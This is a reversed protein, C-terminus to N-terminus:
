EKRAPGAAAQGKGTVAWYIGGMLHGLYQPDRYMEGNHGLTTVFVRGKEVQHHWAIPHDKGMGQVSQGPWIKTPDYSSEDVGLVTDIKVNYPNTTVYFEDSWIWRDPLGFTAPFAKDVVTVVGTQLMPHPGVSRGVLKEYWVWGNPPTIAARHVVVANGGGRMYAEFNARQAANLEEGPTNLFMVAGYQKLDGDFVAPKNTYTFEFSHLKALRELSDRAIPIYEYHYKGPMALVLLKFQSDAHSAGAALLTCAAAITTLVSKM